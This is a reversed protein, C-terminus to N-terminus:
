PRVAWLEWGTAPDYAPFFARGGAAALDLPSGVVRRPEVPFTGAPTGDSEFLTLGYLDQATLVLRDGVAAFRYPTFIARGDRDLLQATGAETGDTTWLTGLSVFWLRGRFVTWRDAPFDLERDHIRRTGAATGDSVWLGNGQLSFVLRDGLSVLVQAEPSSGSGPTVDVELRTGAATGDSSWLERGYLGGTAFFWLRGAHVTLLKPVSSAEGPLLDAVPVTGAATGDSTWLERGLGPGEASFWLRGQFATLDRPTSGQAGPLVDLVMRTGAVTGDSAWLEFGHEDRYEFFVTSGVARMEPPICCGPGALPFTGAATGDTRWPMGHAVYFLLGGAEAYPGEPSAGDPEDPGFARVLVTGAATGDSKWLEGGAAPVRFVVRSGLPLLSQPFSGGVDTRNIDAVLHTGGPAGDAIWLESGHEGDDVAFLLRGDLIAGFFGDPWLYEPEFDSIRVTGAATGDSAWLERGHERDSAAFVLRSGVVAIPYPFSSCDGPCVDRVRRTGARTGDTSWLELGQLISQAAFYLRGKFVAGLFPDGPCIGACVDRLLRTGQPTGDTIWPEVGHPGDDALFVYRGAVGPQRPLALVSHDSIFADPRAFATLVRTGRATGDSAWLEQGKRERAVFYFLNGQVVADLVAPVGGGGAGSFSPLPVTGAQTGDGAWLRRAPGGGPPPMFFALRGGVTSLLEPGGHFAVAPYPDVALVTGPESGDTSWLAGGHVGDDAGFWIRGRYETMGRVASGESGPRLDALRYTGAATGDSRWPEEGHEVDWGVFYLVGQGAAWLPQWAIVRVGPPTLRVTGAPTGDSAWLSAFTGFPHGSLFFYLRETVQFPRPDPLEGPAADSVQWTGAATGDSRWLQRGSLGDEASFLVAGGLTVPFTPNSGTPTPEPNIDKVLYPELAATPLALLVLLSCVALYKM